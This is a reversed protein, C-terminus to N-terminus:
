KSFSKPLFESFIIIFVTYIITSVTTGWDSNWSVGILTVISSAFINVANNGFLISAISFEYEEALKYAIKATKVGEDAEQKLKDRNVVSYVMDASSFFASLISCIAVILWYYWRM